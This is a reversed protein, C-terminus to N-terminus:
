IKMMQKLIMMLHQLFYSADGSDDDGLCSSDADNLSSQNTPEIIVEKPANDHISLKEFSQIEKNEDLSLNNCPGLSYNHDELHIIKNIDDPNIKINRHGNFAETQTGVNRCMKIERFQPQVQVAKDLHTPVSTTSSCTTQVLDGILAEMNEGVSHNGRDQLLKDQEM